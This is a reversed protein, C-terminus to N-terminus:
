KNEVVVVVVAAGVMDRFGFLVLVTIASRGHQLLRVVFCRGFLRCTPSAYVVSVAARAFAISIRENCCAHVRKRTSELLITVNRDPFPILFYKHNVRRWWHRDPVLFKVIERPDYSVLEGGPIETFLDIRCYYGVPFNKSFRALRGRRRCCLCTTELPSLDFVNWFFFWIYKQGARTFWNHVTSYSTTNVM